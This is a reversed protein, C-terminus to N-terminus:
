FEVIEGYRNISFGNTKGRRTAKILFTTATVEEITYEYFRDVNNPNDIALANWDNTYRNKWAFFDYEAQSAVKLIDKANNAYERELQSQWGVISIGAIIAIILLVVILELTTVSKKSLIKCGAAPLICM